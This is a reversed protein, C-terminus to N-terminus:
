DECEPEVYTGALLFICREPDLNKVSMSISAYMSVPLVQRV